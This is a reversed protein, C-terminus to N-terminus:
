ELVRKKPWGGTVAVGFMGRRGAEGRECLCMSNGISFTVPWVDHKWFMYNGKYKRKKDENQLGERWKQHRQTM